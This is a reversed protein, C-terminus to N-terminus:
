VIRRFWCSTPPRNCARRNWSKSTSPTPLFRPPQSQVFAKTSTVTAYLLLLLLLYYYFSLKYPATVHISDSCPRRVVNAAWARRFLFLICYNQGGHQLYVVNYCHSTAFKLTSVYQRIHQRIHLKRVLRFVGDAFLGPLLNKWIDCKGSERNARLMYRWCPPM